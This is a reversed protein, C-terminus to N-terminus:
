EILESYCQLLMDVDGNGRILNSVSKLFDYQPLNCKPNVYELNVPCISVNKIKASKSIFEVKILDDSFDTHKMKKSQWIKQSTIVIGIKEYDDVRCVIDGREFPNFIDVYSYLRSFDNNGDTIKLQNGIIVNILESKSNYRLRGLEFEFDIEDEDSSNIDVSESINIIVIDFKGNTKSGAKLAAEFMSFFKCGGGQNINLLLVYLYEKKEYRTLKDLM